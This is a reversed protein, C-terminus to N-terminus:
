RPCTADEVMWNVLEAFGIGVKGAQEPVLSTATMGPQTNIELVALQDAAPDYRFDVRSVGRCGIARHAVAAADLAGQRVSNPVNAPLVHRSGGEAYKARYDYWGGDAAEIETVELPKGDMVAVTIEKGPVFREVMLLADTRDSVNPPPSGAAVIEVGISSGENNPKVVYPPKMVHQRAIQEPPLLVSETVPLGAERFISKSLTKNMAVASAEVGSHSYPLGQTELLGQVCGDEGGRGHLMNLCVDPQIRDLAMGLDRGADVEEVQWGSERLAKACARGSVLSVEREKSWGGLLVAM